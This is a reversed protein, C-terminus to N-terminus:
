LKLTIMNQFFCNTFFPLKVFKQNTPDLFKYNVFCLGKIGVRFMNLVAINISGKMPIKATHPKPFGM